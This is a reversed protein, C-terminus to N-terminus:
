STDQETGPGVGSQYNHTQIVCCCLLPSSITAEQLPFLSPNRKMGKLINRVGGATERVEGGM